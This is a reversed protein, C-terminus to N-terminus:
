NTMRTTANASERRGARLWSHLQVWSPQGSARNISSSFMFLGLATTSISMIFAFARNGRGAVTIASIVLTGAGLALFSLLTFFVM